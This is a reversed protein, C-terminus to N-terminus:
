VKILTSNIFFCLNTYRLKLCYKSLVNRVTQCCLHVTPEFIALFISRILSFRLYPPSNKHLLLIHNNTFYNNHKKKNDWRGYDTVAKDYVYLRKQEKKNEVRLTLVKAKLRVSKM